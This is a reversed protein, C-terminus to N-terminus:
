IEMLKELLIYLFLSYVFIFIVLQNNNTNHEFCFDRFNKKIECIFYILINLFVILLIFTLFIYFFRWDVVLLFFYSFAWM